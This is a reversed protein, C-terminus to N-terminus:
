RYLQHSRIYEDVERNLGQPAINTRVQERIMTSTIAGHDDFEFLRAHLLHGLIGLRKKLDHLADLETGPRAAVAFSTNRVVSEIDDWGDLRSITDMGVIFVFRTGAHRKMLQDFTNMTHPLTSLEGTYVKISSSASTAIRSMALRHGYDLVGQKMEVSSNVIKPNVLLWVEDLECEQMAARALELHGLHIPDFTGPLLGVRRHVAVEDINRVAPV